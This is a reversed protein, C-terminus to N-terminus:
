MASSESRSHSVGGPPGRFAAAGGTQQLRCVWELVTEYCLVFQRLSQVMSLRQGRFDEVTRAVLDITDDKLYATDIPSMPTDLDDDANGDRLQDEELETEPTSGGASSSSSGIGNAKDMGAMTEGINPFALPASKFTSHPSVLEDEGMAMDGDADKKPKVEMETAEKKDAKKGFGRQVKRAARTAAVARQRKLMDIVSDVTCFAGTRGCGASCHVLM